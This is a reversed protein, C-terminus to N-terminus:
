IGCQNDLEKYMNDLKNYFEDYRDDELLEQLDTIITMLTQKNTIARGGYQNDLVEEVDPIEELISQLGIEEILGEKTSIRNIVDAQNQISNNNANIKFPIRNNPDLLRYSSNNYNWIEGQEHTLQASVNNEFLLYVSDNRYEYSVLKGWEDSFSAAIAEIVTMANGNHALRIESLSETTDISDYADEPQLVEQEPQQQIEENQQVSPTDDQQKRSLDVVMLPFAPFANARFMQPPSVTLIETGKERKGKIPSSFIGYKFPAKEYRAHRSNEFTNFRSGLIAGHFILDWM